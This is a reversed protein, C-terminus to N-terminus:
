IAFDPLKNDPGLLGVTHPEVGADHKFTISDGAVITLTEPYFRDIQWSSKEGAETFVEHGMTVTWTQAAGAPAANVFRAGFTAILLWPLIFLAGLLRLKRIM